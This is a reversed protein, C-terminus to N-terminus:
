LRSIITYDLQMENSKVPTFRRSFIRWIGSIRFDCNLPKEEEEEEEEEELLGPNKM